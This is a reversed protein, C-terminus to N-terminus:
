DEGEVIHWWYNPESPIAAVIHGADPMNLAVNSTRGAVPPATNSFQRVTGGVSTLLIAILTLV